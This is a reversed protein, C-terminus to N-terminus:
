NHFFKPMTLKIPMLNGLTELFSNGMPLLLGNRLRHQYEDLHSYGSKGLVIDIIKRHDYITFGWRFHPYIKLLETRIPFTCNTLRCFDSFIMFAHSQASDIKKNSIVQCGDVLKTIYLLTEDSNFYIISIDGPLSIPKDLLYINKIDNHKDCINIISPIKLINAANIWSLGFASSSYVADPQIIKIVSTALNFDSKYREGLTGKNFVDNSIEIPPNEWPLIAVKEINDGIPLLVTIVNFQIQLEQAIRFHLWEANSAIVFLLIKKCLIPKRWPTRNELIGYQYYHEALAPLTIIGGRILDQHIAGYSIFRSLSVGEWGRPLNISEPFQSLESFSVITNIINDYTDLKIRTPNYQQRNWKTFIESIGNEEFLLIDVYEIFDYTILSQLDYMNILQEQSNKPDRMIVRHKVMQESITKAAYIAYTCTLDHIYVDCEQLQILINICTNYSELFLDVSNNTKQLVIIEVMPITKFYEYVSEHPKNNLLITIAYDYFLLGDITKYLLDDNGKTDISNACVLIRMSKNIKVIKSIIPIQLSVPISSIGDVVYGFRYALVQVIRETAHTYTFQAGNADSVYGKEGSKIINDMLYKFGAKCEKKYKTFLSGRMAFITGGIFKTVDPGLKNLDYAGQAYLNNHINKSHDNNTCLATRNYFEKIDNCVFSNLDIDRSNITTKLILPQSSLIDNYNMLFNKSLINHVKYAYMPFMFTYTPLLWSKAGVIGANKHEDFYKLLQDIDLIPQLLELSWVPVTKSHLKIILDYEKDNQESTLLELFPYLDAGHNEVSQIKKKCSEPFEGIRDRLNDWLIASVTIHLDFNYKAEHRTVLRRIIEFYTLNISDKSNGIHLVILIEPKQQIEAM